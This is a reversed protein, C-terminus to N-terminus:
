MRTAAAEPANPELCNLAHSSDDRPYQWEPTSDRIQKSLHAWSKGVAQSELHHFCSNYTVLTIPSM